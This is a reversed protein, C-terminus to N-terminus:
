SLASSSHIGRGKQSVELSGASIPSNTNKRRELFLLFGAILGHAVGIILFVMPILWLQVFSAIRAGGPNNKWYLVAVSDGVQFGSPNSATSSSVTYTKGDQAAFSFVPAYETTDAASNFRENLQVVKGTAKKAAGLFVATYIASGICLVVCCSTTVSLVIRIFHVIRWLIPRKAM